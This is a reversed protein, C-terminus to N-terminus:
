AFTDEEAGVPHGRRREVPYARGGAVRDIGLPEVRALSVPEIRLRSGHNERLSLGVPAEGHAGRRVEDDQGAVEGRDRRALVILDIQGDDPPRDEM